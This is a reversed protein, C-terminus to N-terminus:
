ELTRCGRKINDFKWEISKMKKDKRKVMAYLIIDAVFIGITGFFLISIIVGM